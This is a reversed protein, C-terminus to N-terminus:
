WAPSCGSGAQAKTTVRACTREAAEAVTTMARPQERLLVLAKHFLDGPLEGLPLEMRRHHQMFRAQAALVTMALAAMDGEKAAVLEQVLPSLV